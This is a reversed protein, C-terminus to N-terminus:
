DDLPVPGGTRWYESRDRSLFGEDVLLRRLSAADPHFRRLVANVEREPYRVGVEFELALRTLVVLRKSRKAPIEKLRGGVFWQRLVSEEGEDGAGLAIGPERSPGAERAAQRLVGADLLYTRRDELARVVGTATLRGLHRRVRHVPLSAAGALEEATRPGVALAGAVALREPDALARLIEDPGATM